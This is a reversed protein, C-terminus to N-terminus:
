RYLNEVTVLHWAPLGEAKETTGSSLAHKSFLYFSRPEYGRVLSARRELERMAETEDFTERYKCEGVLLEKSQTSAAVVDIDTTSRRDPDAGWWSGFADVKLDLRRSLRPWSGSAAFM